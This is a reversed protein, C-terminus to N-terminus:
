KTTVQTAGKNSGGGCTSPTTDTVVPVELTALVMDAWMLVLAEPTKAKLM